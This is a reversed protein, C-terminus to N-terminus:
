QINNSNMTINGDNDLINFIAQVGSPNHTGKINSYNGNSETAETYDCDFAKGYKDAYIEFKGTNNNLNRIDGVWLFHNTAGGEQIM